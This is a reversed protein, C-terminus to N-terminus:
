ERAQIEQGFEGAIKSFISTLRGKVRAKRLSERTKYVMSIASLLSRHAWNPFPIKSRECPHFRTEDVGLPLYYAHEFGMDRMDRITNSDWLLLVCFPSINKSYNKIILNPNDVYWSVLANRNQLTVTVFRRRSGPGYHNITFVFDPKFELINEVMRKMFEQCGVEDNEITILRFRIGLRKM